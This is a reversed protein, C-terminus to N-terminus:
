FLIIWRFIAYTVGNLLEWPLNVTWCHDVNARSSNREHKQRNRITAIYTWRTDNKRSFVPNHCTKTLIKSMTLYEGVTVFRFYAYCSYKWSQCVNCCLERWKPGKKPSFQIESQLSLAGQFKDEPHGCIHKEHVCPMIISSIPSMVNISHPQPLFLSFSRHFGNNETKFSM